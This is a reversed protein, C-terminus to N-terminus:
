IRRYPALGEVVVPLIKAPAATISVGQASAASLGLTKKNRWEYGLQIEFLSRIDDPMATQGATPDTGAAVYGGTYIVRINRTGFDFRVAGKLMILGRENSVRYITSELLTDATWLQDDSVHVSAVSEVPFRELELTFGGGSFLQEVGAARLLKRGLLADFRAQLGAMMRALLEDDHADPIGFTAKAEELTLIHLVTEM